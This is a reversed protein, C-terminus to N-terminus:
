DKPTFRKISTKSLRVELEEASLNAEEAQECVKLIEIAHIRVAKLLQKQKSTTM